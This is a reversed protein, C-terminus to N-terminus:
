SQFTIKYFADSSDLSESFMLFLQETPPAIEFLDQFGIPILIEFDVAQVQGVFLIFDEAFHLILFM